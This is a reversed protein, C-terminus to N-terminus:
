SGGADDSRVVIEMERLVALAHRERAMARGYYLLVDLPYWVAVWAIVLVLGDGFFREIVGPLGGQRIGEILILGVLLVPLGIGLAGIGNRVQAGRTHRLEESRADCYRVISGRVREEVGAGIEGEAVVVVARRPEDIRTAQLQNVLREIGSALNASGGWEDLAPPAFLEALTDIRLTVEDPAASRRRRPRGIGNM